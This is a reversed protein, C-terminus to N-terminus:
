KIERFEWEILDCMYEFALQGIEEETADDDVEFQRTRTSGVFGTNVSVEILKM